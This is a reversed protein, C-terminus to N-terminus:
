ISIVENAILNKFFTLFSLYLYHFPSGLFFQEIEPIWKSGKKSYYLVWLHGLNYTQMMTDNKIDKNRTYRNDYANKKNVDDDDNHWAMGM